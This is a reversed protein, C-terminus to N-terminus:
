DRHRAHEFRQLALDLAIEFRFPRQFRKALIKVGRLIVLNERRM